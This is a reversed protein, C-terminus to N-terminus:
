IEIVHDNKTADFTWNPDFQGNQLHHPFFPRAALKQGNFQWKQQIEKSRCSTKSILIITSLCIKLVTSSSTAIIDRLVQCHPIETRSPIDLKTFVWTVFVCGQYDPQTNGVLQVVILQM